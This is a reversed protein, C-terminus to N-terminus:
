GRPVTYEEALSCPPNTEDGNREDQLVIRNADGKLGLLLLRVHFTVPGGFFQLSVPFKEWCLLFQHLMMSSPMGLQAKGDQQLKELVFPPKRVMAILDGCLGDGVQGLLQFHGDIFIADVGPSATGDFTMARRDSSEQLEALRRSLIDLLQREPQTFLNHRLLALHLRQQFGNIIMAPCLVELRGRPSAELTQDM